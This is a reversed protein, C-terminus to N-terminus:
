FGLTNNKSVTHFFGASVLTCVSAPLTKTVLSKSRQGKDWLYVPKSSEDQFMVTDLKINRAADTQLIDHLFASVCVFPPLFLVGAVADAYTPVM